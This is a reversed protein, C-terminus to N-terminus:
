IAVCREPRAASLACYSCSADCSADFLPRPANLPDFSAIHGRTPGSVDGNPGRQPPNWLPSSMAAGTYVGIRAAEDPCTTVTPRGYTAYPSVATTTIM